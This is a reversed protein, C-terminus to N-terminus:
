WVAQAKESDSGAGSLRVADLGFQRLDSADPWRDCTVTVDSAATGTVCLFSGPSQESFGGRWYPGELRLPQGGPLDAACPVASSAVIVAVATLSRTIDM